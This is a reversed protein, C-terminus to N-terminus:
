PAFRSEGVFEAAAPTVNADGAEPDSSMLQLRMIWM